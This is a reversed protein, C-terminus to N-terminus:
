IYKQFLSNKPFSYVWILKMTLTRLLLKIWTQDYQILFLQLHRQRNWQKTVTENHQLIINLFTYESNPIYRCNHIHYIKNLKKTTNIMYGATSSNNQKCTDYITELASHFYKLGVTNLYCSTARGHPKYLNKHTYVTWYLILYLSTKVLLSNSLQKYVHWTINGKEQLIRKFGDVKTQFRSFM